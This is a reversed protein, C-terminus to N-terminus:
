RAAGAAPADPALDADVIQAGAAVDRALVRGRIDVAPSIGGEPRLLSLDTGELTSGARLGHAAHWSRRVLVANDQESPQRVKVGDGLGVALAKTSRVYDALEAPELSAMHDPGPMTRDLTFHKELVPAGLAVAGLATQLGPTHDSWGVPVGHGAEMAPIARLNCEEIPAPYASVCHFLVLGPAEACADVAAAVEDSTGMGTSVLMTVGLRALERLYPLNTLEGSSVKMAPLGLEALAHASDLDFPTSLFELGREHTHAQLEAWATMPLTLAELLSRQDQAGGRDRQYPTTAAVSSVLKAADFTQFKVADAGAEAATDVLRHAIDLDGNHNVGAEAIVYVDRETPITRDGISAARVSM